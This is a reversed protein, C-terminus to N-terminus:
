TAGQSSAISGTTASGRISCAGTATEAGPTSRTKAQAILEHPDIGDISTPAGVFRVEQARLADGIESGLEGACQHTPATGTSGGGATFGAGTSHLNLSDAPLSAGRPVYSSAAGSADNVGIPTMMSNTTQAAGNLTVGGLAPLAPTTSFALTGATVSFQAQDPASAAAAISATAGLISAAALLAVGGRRLLRSSELRHIMQSDM